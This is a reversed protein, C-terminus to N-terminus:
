NANPLLIFDYDGSTVGLLGVLAPPALQQQSQGPLLPVQAYDGTRGGASVRYLAIVPRDGALRRAEALRQGLNGDPTGPSQIMLPAQAKDVALAAIIDMVVLSRSLGANPALQVPPATPAFIGPAAAIDGPPAAAEPAPKAAQLVSREESRGIAAPPLEDQTSFQQALPAAEPAQERKRLSKEGEAQGIIGFVEQPRPEALAVAEEEKAETDAEAYSKAKDRRDAELEPPLGEALLADSLSGGPGPKVYGEAAPDPMEPPAIRVKAVSEKQISMRRSGMYANGMFVAVVLFSAALGALPGGWAILRRRKRRKEDLGVVNDDLGAKRRAESAIAAAAGHDIGARVDEIDAAEIRAIEDEEEEGALLAGMLKGGPSGGGAALARAFAISGAPDVGLASLEARVEDDAMTEVASDQELIALLREAPTPHMTM